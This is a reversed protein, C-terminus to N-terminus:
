TPLMSVVSSLGQGSKVFCRRASKAHLRCCCPCHMITLVVDILAIVALAVKVDKAWVALKRRVRRYRSRVWLNLLRTRRLEIEDMEAETSDM